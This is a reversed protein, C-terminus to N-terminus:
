NEHHWIIQGGVITQLFPKYEKGKHNQTRLLCFAFLYIKVDTSLLTSLVIALPLHM